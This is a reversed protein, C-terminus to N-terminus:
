CWVTIEGLGIETIDCGKVEVAVAVDSFAHTTILFLNLYIQELYAVLLWIVISDM